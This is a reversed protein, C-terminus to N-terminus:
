NERLIGILVIEDKIDFKLVRVIKDTPTNLYNTGHKEFYEKEYVIVYVPKGEVKVQYEAPAEAYNWLRMPNTM